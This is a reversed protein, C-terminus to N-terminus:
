GAWPLATEGLGALSRGLPRGGAVVAVCGAVPQRTIPGTGTPPGALPRGSPDYHEIQAQVRLAAGATPDARGTVAAVLARCDRDLAARGARGGPPGFAASAFIQVTHRDTCSVPGQWLPFLRLTCVTFRDPLAGGRFASRATGDYRRSGPPQLVCARWQQGARRQRGDPGVGQAAGLGVPAWSGFRAVPHGPKSGPNTFGLYAATPAACVAFSPAPPAFYDGPTFVGSEDFVATVEGDHPFGCPIPEMSPIQTVGAATRRIEILDNRDMTVCMGVTPAGAVPAISGTGTLMRGGLAPLAAAALVALAVM